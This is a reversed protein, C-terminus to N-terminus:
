LVYLFNRSFLIQFNLTFTRRYSFTRFTLDIQMVNDRRYQFAVQYIYQESRTRAIHVQYTLASTEAQGKDRPARIEPYGSETGRCYMCWTRRIYPKISTAVDRHSCWARVAVLGCDSCTSTCVYTYATGPRIYGITSECRTKKSNIRIRLITTDKQSQLIRCRRM